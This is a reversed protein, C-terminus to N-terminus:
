IIIVMVILLMIIMILFIGGILKMKWFFVNLKDSKGVLLLM